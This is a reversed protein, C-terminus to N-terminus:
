RSRVLLFPAKIFLNINLVPHIYVSIRVSSTYGYTFVYMNRVCMLM